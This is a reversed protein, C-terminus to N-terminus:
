TSLHDTFLFFCCGLCCILKPPSSPFYTLFSLLFLFLILGTETNEAKQGSVSDAHQSCHLPKYKQVHLVSVVLPRGQRDQVTHVCPDTRVNWIFCNVIKVEYVAWDCLLKHVLWLMYHISEHVYVYGLLQSCPLVFLLSPQRSLLDMHIEFFVPSKGLLGTYMNQSFGCTLTVKNTM